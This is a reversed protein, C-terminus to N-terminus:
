STTLSKFIIIVSFCNTPFTCLIVSEVLSSLWSYPHWIERVSFRSVFIIRSDFGLWEFIGTKQFCKNFNNTAFCNLTVATCIRKEKFKSPSQMDSLTQSSVRTVQGM